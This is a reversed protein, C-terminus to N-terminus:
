KLNITINSGLYYKFRYLYTSFKRLTLLRAPQFLRAPHFIKEFKIFSCASFTRAPHFFFRFNTLWCAPKNPVEFYMHITVALEAWPGLLFYMLLDLLHFALKRFLLLLMLLPLLMYVKLVKLRLERDFMLSYILCLRLPKEWRMM